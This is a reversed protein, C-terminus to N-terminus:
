FSSLETSEILFFKQLILKIWFLEIILHKYLFAEIKNYKNFLLYKSKYLQLFMKLSTRNNTTGGFHIIPCDSLYIIKYGEKKVRLCWDAGEGYMFFQEDLFGIKNFVNRSIIMGAESPLDIEFYKKSQNTSVDFIHIRRNIGTEILFESFLSKFRRASADQYDGNPSIMKCGVIAVDPNKDLFNVAKELSNPLVLTDDNLLLIHRGNAKEININNNKAFGYRENNSSLMVDPFLKQTYEDSGDDSVNDVVLIEFSIDKINQYISELCPKLYKWNSTNVISISLDIQDVM